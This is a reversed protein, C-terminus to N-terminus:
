EGEEDQPKLFENAAPLHKPEPYGPKKGKDTNSAAFQYNGCQLVYHIERLVERDWQTGLMGFEREYAQWETLEKATIRRLLEGVPM